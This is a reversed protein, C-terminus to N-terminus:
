TFSGNKEGDSVPVELKGFGSCYPEDENQPIERSAEYMKQVDELSLAAIFWRIRMVAPCNYNKRNLASNKCSYVDNVWKGGSEKKLHVYHHLNKEKWGDLQEKTTCTEQTKWDRTKPMSQDELIDPVRGCEEQIWTIVVDNFLVKNTAHKNFLFRGAEDGDLKLKWLLSM